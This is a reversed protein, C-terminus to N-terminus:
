AWQRAEAMVIRAEAEATGRLSWHGHTWGVSTDARRRWWSSVESPLARWVSSDGRYHRLFQGYSALRMPDVLYDPHTVILAMGNRSRLLEAKEVWAREDKKGLIVFLTHDHPMTMPLEVMGENFFPWWTCCGGPLPEFPDTDPYSSDYDFGLLPMWEWKRHSAPSRFGVAGWREGAERIAPLRRRLEALSAFDRGDHRLGHVGVEFGEEALSAILTDSVEYRRPVFNWSSRLGLSRELELVPDLARLGASTEVDHTLVMAWEHGNPWPAIWPLPEGAADAAIALFMDLFDHLGTEAPWGPFPTRAQIRAYGRRLWIQTRRPMLARVRYYGRLLVARGPGRTSGRVLDVYRESLYSHRVDDPDFPLFVSGDRARWISALHGGDDGKVALARQWTGGIGGLVHEAEGDPLMAVFIPIRPGSGNDISGVVPASRHAVASPWLVASGTEFRLHDIGPAIREGTEVYPLRFHEAIAVTRSATIPVGLAPLAAASASM